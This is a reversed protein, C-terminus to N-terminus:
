PMGSGKAWNQSKSMTGFKSRATDLISPNKTRITTSPITVVFSRGDHISAPTRIPVTCRIRMFSFRQARNWSVIFSRCDSLHRPLENRTPVRRNGSKQRSGNKGSPPFAQVVQLCGNEKTAEDIAILCSAMDPFLCGNGYWYGYDQHWAWAGGVRAEKLILKHHYHYVEDDLLQEMTSVIRRSRVIAGYISDDPLDNRVVLKVAGGEGDARSSADAKVTPDAKSIKRLLEIEDAMSCITSSSFDRTM